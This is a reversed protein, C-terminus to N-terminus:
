KRYQLDDNIGFRCFSNIFNLTVHIICIVESKISKDTSSILCLYLNGVHLIIVRCYAIPKIFVQWSMIEQM